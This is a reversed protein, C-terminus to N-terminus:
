DAFDQTFMEGNVGASVVGIGIRRFDPNLINEKHSPSNMFGQHAMYVDPALAINEGAAGFDVGASKMRKFPSGSIPSDHAFYQLSWMENSHWRAVDRIKKDMVLPKLDRRQRELNVLYLMEQEDGAVNDLHFTVKPMLLTEEKKVVRKEVPVVFVLRDGAPRGIKTEVKGTANVSLVFLQGGILSHTIDIKFRESAPIAVIVSLVVSTVITMALVAPIVGLPKDFKKLMLSGKLKKERLDKIYPSLLALYGLQGGTFLAVFAGANAINRFVGRQDIMFGALLPYALFAIMLMVLLGTLIFLHSFVGRDYRYYIYLFFAIVIVIDVWNFSHL